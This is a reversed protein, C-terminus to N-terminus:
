DELIKLKLDGDKGYLILTYVKKSKFDVSKELVPKPSGSLFVQIQQKGSEIRKTLQPSAYKLGSVIKKTQDKKPNKLKITVPSTGTAAHFSRIAASGKKLKMNDRFIFSNPLFGNPEFNESGEFIFHAKHTFTEQNVESSLSPLGFLIMTYKENKALGIKKTLLEKDESNIEFHYIAEEVPFYQLLEDQPIQIDGSSKASYKAEVSAPMANFVQLEPSKNNKKQNCAIFLFSVLLYKLFDTKM